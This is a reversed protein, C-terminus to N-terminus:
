SESKGQSGKKEEEKISKMASVPTIGIAFLSVTKSKSIDNARVIFKSEGQPLNFIHEIEHIDWSQNYMDYMGKFKKIRVPYSEGAVKVAIEAGPEKECRYLLSLTYKGSEECNIKWYLSDEVSVWNDVWERTDNITMNGSIVAGSPDGTRASRDGTVLYTVKDSHITYVPIEKQVSINQAAVPTIGLICVTCVVFFLVANYKMKSHFNHNISTSGNKKM